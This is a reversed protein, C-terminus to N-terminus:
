WSPLFFQFTCSLNPSALVSLRARQLLKGPGVVIPVAYQVINMYQQLLGYYWPLIIYIGSNRWSHLYYWVALTTSSAYKYLYVSVDVMIHCYMTSTKFTSHKECKNPNQLSCGYISTKSFKMSTNASLSVSHTRKRPIVRVHVNFVTTMTRIKRWM